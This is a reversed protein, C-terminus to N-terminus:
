ITDIFVKLDIIYIHIYIKLNERVIHLPYSRIIYSKEWNYMTKASVKFIDRRSCYPIIYQYIYNETINKYRGGGRQKFEFIIDHISIGSNEQMFQWFFSNQLNRKVEDVYNEIQEIWYSKYNITRQKKPNKPKKHEKLKTIEQILVDRSIFENITEISEILKLVDKKRNWANLM